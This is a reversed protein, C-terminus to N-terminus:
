LLNTPLENDNIAEPEPTEPIGAHDIVQDLYEATVQDIASSDPLPQTPTQLDATQPTHVGAAALTKELRALLAIAAGLEEPRASKDM